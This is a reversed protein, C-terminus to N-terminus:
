EILIEIAKPTVYAEKLSFVTHFNGKITIKPDVRLESKVVRDIINL